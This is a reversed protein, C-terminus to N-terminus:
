WMLADFQGQVSKRRIPAVRARGSIGMNKMYVCVKRPPGASCKEPPDADAQRADPAPTNKIIVRGAAAGARQLDGRGAGSRPRCGRGTGRKRPRTLKRLSAYDQALESCTDEKTSHQQYLICTYFLYGAHRLFFGPSYTLVHGM